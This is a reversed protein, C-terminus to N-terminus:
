YLPGPLATVPQALESCTKGGADQFKLRLVYDGPEVASLPLALQRPNALDQRIEARSPGGLEELTAIINHSGKSVAGTGIADFTFALTRRPMLIQRPANM